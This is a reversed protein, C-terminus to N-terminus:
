LANLHQFTGLPLPRVQILIERDTHLEPINGGKELRYRQGPGDLLLRHQKKGDQVDSHTNNEPINNLEHQAQETQEKEIDNESPKSSNADITNTGTGEEKLLAHEQQIIENIAQHSQLTIGSSIETEPQKTEQASIQFSNKHLGGDIHEHEIVNKGPQLTLSVTSVATSSM